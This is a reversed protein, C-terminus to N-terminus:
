PIEHYSPAMRHFTCFKNFGLAKLASLGENFYRGVCGEKHSDTGITIIEGGLDRYLKLIDRSPTLDSLRKKYCSTNLEIGKGDRIVTELIEAIIDRNKHFPVFPVRCSTTVLDMHALCSYSKFERVVALMEEYYSLYCEEPTKGAKFEETWIGRDKVQHISLLAFDMPYKECLAKNLSLTHRQVGLELGKKLVIKGEYKESLRSLESFYREYDVNVLPMGSETYEIREGWDKKPGYDVHDTFCIEDMCLGIAERVVDEMPYDSDNSYSCHIHYDSYM